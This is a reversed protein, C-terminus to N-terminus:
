EQTMERKVETTAPAAPTTSAVPMGLEAALDALAMDELAEREAKDEKFRSTDISDKAVRARGAAKTRQEEVMGHLRDLTDGSGGIETLMGSAMENMEALAKKMKLDDLGKRLENMKDRAAKIATDRSMMLEKYTKDADELQSRNEALDRRVRQLEVAIEGALRQNGARINAGAKAKLDQEERELRKVQSMLKEVLGAHASLGQNFQAIQKRLNEKELELLAEPNRMEIGSIFLSLFGRVINSLRRLM